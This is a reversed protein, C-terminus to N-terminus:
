TPKLNKLYKIYFIEPLAVWKQRPALEPPHWFDRDFPPSLRFILVKTSVLSLIRSDHM